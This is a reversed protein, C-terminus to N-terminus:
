YCVQFLHKMDFANNEYRRQIKEGEWKQGYIM